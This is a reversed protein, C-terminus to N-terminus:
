MGAGYVPVFAKVNKREKNGKAKTKKLAGRTIYSLAESNQSFQRQTWQFFVIALNNAIWQQQKVLHSKEKLNIGNLLPSVSIRFLIGIPM